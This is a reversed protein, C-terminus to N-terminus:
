ILKTELITLRRELNSLSDELLNLQSFICDLKFSDNTQNLKSEISKDSKASENIPLYEFEYQNLYNQNDNFPPENIAENNLNILNQFSSRQFPHKSNNKLNKNLNTRNKKNGMDIVNETLKHDIEDLRKDIASKIERNFHSNTNLDKMRNLRFQNSCLNNTSRNQYFLKDKNVLKTTRKSNDKLDNLNSLSKNIRRFNDERLNDERLNDKEFNDWKLYNNYAREDIESLNDISSTEVDDTLNFSWLKLSKDKGSTLFKDGEKNFTCNFISKYHGKLTYFLRGEIVNILKSTADSSCALLYQGNRHFELCNVSDNFSRYFQIIKTMKRLDFIRIMNNSSAIAIFYESLPYWDLNTFHRNRSTTITKM